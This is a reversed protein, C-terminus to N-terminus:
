ELTPERLRYNYNFDRLKLKGYLHKELITVDPNDPTPYKPENIVSYEMEDKKLYYDKLKTNYKFTTTRAWRQASGGYHIIKFITKTVIINVYPDGMVGGCGKCFVVSDNQIVMNYTNAGAGHVILLRRLLNADNAENLQSLIFVYDKKGDTNMDCAISDLITYDKPIIESINKQAFFLQSNLIAIYLLIKSTTM